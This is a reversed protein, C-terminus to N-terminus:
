KVSLFIPNSYFWLDSWPDEGKPDPQPELEATNTGRVRIYENKTVNRIRYTIVTHDGVQSWHSPTFRAEVRTTPNRDVSKDAVAGTVEGRILDVRAVRPGMTKGDSARDDKFRITVDIDKGAKTTLTEGMTAKAQAGDAKVSVDLESILDGTTVFIKGARLSSIISEPTKDAYVYTKSYEGPWFDIGGETYHVHSDSTATIWWRRGEGLLSDWLGGVQATMQDFGGMTPSKGYAGRGIDRAITEPAPAVGLKPRSLSSAQHGPAGEMGIAVQPAVDNWSRFEQPTTLGYEGIATASRSPHHAFLVPKPTQQNMFELASIMASPQNRAESSPFMERSDFNFEIDRLREAEDPGYPIVVSSHDAAPTNLEMGFFQIVEPVAARSQLLEPYAYDHNIKSHNPGGHDTAVMWSLGFRRAMSANTTIPYAADAGLMPTPATTKVDFGVSYRSHIHHDGALWRPGTRSDQKLAPMQVANPKPTPHRGHGSANGIIGLSLLAGILAIQCLNARPSTVKPCDDVLRTTSLDRMTEAGTEQM